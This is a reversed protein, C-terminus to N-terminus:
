PHSCQRSDQECSEERVLDVYAGAILQDEAVGLEKLLEAAVAMGAEDSEGEELVVELELFDGLREVRDLHIRTRGKMFVTRHKRVRGTEGYGLALVQRLLDPSSTPSIVYFSQKPGAQDSRQYFILEGINASFRRLKMRGRACAFFIDEEDIETPGADAIAAATKLMEDIGRIRAKIEVNKAM